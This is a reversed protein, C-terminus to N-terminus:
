SGQEGPVLDSYWQEAENEALQLAYEKHTAEILISFIYEQEGNTEGISAIWKKKM